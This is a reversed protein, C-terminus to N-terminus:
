HTVSRRLRKLVANLQERCERALEAEQQYLLGYTFTDEGAAHAAGAERLLHARSLVSDQHEGLLTQITKARESTRTDGTAAAVYRLRKAAKRIRHLADDREARTGTQRAAEAKKVAKRLRRYSSGITAPPHDADAEPARNVILEDLADLLRFYRESRMAKLSRNLGVHYRQWAGQVLREHVPGRVLEPPLANLAASYRDALVEADRAIGLVAGLERLENLIAADDTLGFDAESAQLLSRIQRITVRMQHVADDSDARVARDWELLRAVQEAVARHVPDSPPERRPTLPGLTKALKSGHAAPAAGADHLRQGLRELLATGDELTGDVLELEWERWTRESRVTGDTTDLSCTTVRDDCFEALPTGDPSHIMTVDRATVIRAVPVLTRDRVIARVTDLLDEPVDAAGSGAGLPAHIETRATQGAPLKLHWGADPGGTRRRLTVLNASLDYGPTDLYVAELALTPLKETRGVCALGEFSPSVTTDTVDFKHELEVHRSPKRGKGMGEANCVM